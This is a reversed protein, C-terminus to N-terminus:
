AERLGLKREQADSVLTQARQSHVLSFPYHDTTLLLSMADVTASELTPLPM